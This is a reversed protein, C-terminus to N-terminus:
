LGALAPEGLADGTVFEAIGSNVCRDAEDAPVEVIQGIQQVYEGIVEGKANTRHGCRSCNLRVRKTNQVRAPASAIPSTDKAM